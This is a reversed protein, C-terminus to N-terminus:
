GLAEIGPLTGKALFDLMAGGATSVFAFKDLIGLERIVALTDGGGVIVHANSDALMRALKKTGDTYGQEYAGVPGNWLVFKANDIKLNIKQLTEANLDLANLDGVSLFIKPNDAIGSEKAVTDMTGGIFIDDAINLFKNVLPLKTEFKAGGLIFIFPHEPEFAKSLNLVEKLFEFGAFSPLLKPLSVISTHNRHSASFAENVYIDGFMALQKAFVPDNEKEAWFRLNELLAVGGSELYDLGNKGSESSSNWPDRVFKFSIDPFFKKAEEAVPEISSSGDGFHSMLIVKGGKTLVYRITELSAEIRSADLVRGDQVPVNWDVRILVKTGRVIEAEEISRM